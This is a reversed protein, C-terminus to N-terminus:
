KERRAAGPRLALDVLESKEVCGHYSISLRDLLRMLGSSSMARIEVETAGEADEEKEDHRLRHTRPCTKKHPDPGETWHKKQCLASCYRAM